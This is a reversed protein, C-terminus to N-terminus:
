AAKKSRPDELFGLRVLFDSAEEIEWLSFVSLGPAGVPTGAPHAGNPAPATPGFKKAALRLVAEAADFLRGPELSGKSEM